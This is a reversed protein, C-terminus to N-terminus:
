LRGIAKVALDKTKKLKAEDTDPGGLSLRIFSDKKFVYLIGGVGTGLWYAEDGIGSIKKPPTVPGEESERQGSERKQEALSEKKEKDSEDAKENESHAFMKEWYDRARRQTTSDPDRQTLALSVSRNSEAATYYCQSVRMGQDSVSSNKADKIPSGQVAEIEEKTILDCADIRKGSAQSDATQETKRSKDCAALALAVSFLVVISTRM